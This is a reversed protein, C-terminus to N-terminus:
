NMYLYINVTLSGLFGITSGVAFITMYVSTRNIYVVRHRTRRPGRPRQPDQLSPEVQIVVIRNMQGGHTFSKIDQRCLPCKINNMTFLTDLCPKCLEHNCDLLNCDEDEVEELCIPCQIENLAETGISIPSLSLMSVKDGLLIFCIQISANM